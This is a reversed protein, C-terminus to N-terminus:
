KSSRKSRGPSIIALDIEKKIVQEYRARIRDFNNEWCEESDGLVILKFGKEKYHSLSRAYLDSFLVFADRAYDAPIIHKPSRAREYIRNFKRAMRPYPM